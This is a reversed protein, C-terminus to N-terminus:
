RYSGGPKEPSVSSCSLAADRRRGSSVFIFISTYNRIAPQDTALVDSVSKSAVDDVLRVCPKSVHGFGHPVRRHLYGFLDINATIRTCPNFMEVSISRILVTTPHPSLMPGESRRFKREGTPVSFVPSVSLRNM